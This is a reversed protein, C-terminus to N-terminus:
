VTVAGMGAGDRMTSCASLAMRFTIWVARRAMEREMRSCYPVASLPLPRAQSTDGNAVQVHLGLVVAGRTGVRRRVCRRQSQREVPRQERGRQAIDSGEWRPFLSSTSSSTTGLKVAVPCFSPRASALSPLTATNFTFRGQRIKRNRPQHTIALPSESVEGDQTETAGDQDRPLTRQHLSLSEHLLLM